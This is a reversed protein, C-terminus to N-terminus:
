IRLAAGKKFAEDLAAKNDAVPGYGSSAMIIGLYDMKIFECAERLAGDVWERGDENLSAGCTMIMVLKKNSYVAFPLAYLRDVFAKLQATIGWWYMPSALVLVDTASIKPYLNAMDDELVCTCQVNDKKCNNCGICPAVKINHLDIREVFAGNKRAGDLYSEMLAATNGNVHPSGLIAIINM